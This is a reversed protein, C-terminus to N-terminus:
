TCYLTMLPTHRFNTMLKKETKVLLTGGEEGRESMQTSVDSLRSHNRGGGPFGPGPANLDKQSHENSQFIEIEREVGFM